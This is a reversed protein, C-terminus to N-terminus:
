CALLILPPPLRLYPLCPPPSERFENDNVSECWLRKLRAEACTCVFALPQDDSANYVNVFNIACTGTGVAYCCLTPGGAVKQDVPVLEVKNGDILSSDGGPNVGVM